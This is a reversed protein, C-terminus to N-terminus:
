EPLGRTYRYNKREVANGAGAKIRADMAEYNKKCTSFKIFGV